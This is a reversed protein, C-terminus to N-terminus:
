ETTGKPQPHRTVDPDNQGGTQEHSTTAHSRTGTRDPGDRCRRCIRWSGRRFDQHSPTFILECQRCTIEMEITM